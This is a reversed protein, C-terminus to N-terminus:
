FVDIVSEQAYSLMLPAFIDEPVPVGFAGGVFVPPTTDEPRRARVTVTDNGTGMVAEKPTHRLGDEYEARTWLIRRSTDQCFMGVEVALDMAAEFVRDALDDDNPVITERDFKIGYERVLRKTTPAILTAEFEREEIMPGTEARHLVELLRGRHRM